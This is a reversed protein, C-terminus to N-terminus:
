RGTVKKLATWVIPPTMVRAIAVFRDAGFRTMFNTLMKDQSPKGAEPSSYYYAAISRRPRGEPAKSPTPHGHFSAPGHLMFISRGFEPEVRKVCAKKNKDWLELAAHWEPQWDKNLYTILVMENQLGTARHRNFDRHIAFAAGTRSEHLGGGYLHPDSLLYPAGTISSVWEVFWGSNVVDFYLQSAPGLRGGMVSRRFSEYRTKVDQWALGSHQEFEECVLKLLDPHFIGEVVLHPFPKAALLEDRLKKRAEPEFLKRNVLESLQLRVGRITVFDGEGTAVPAASAETRLPDPAMVNSM